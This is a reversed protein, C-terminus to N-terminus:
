NHGHKEIAVGSETMKGVLWFIMTYSNTVRQESSDAHLWIMTLAHVVPDDGTETEYRTENIPLSSTSRYSGILPFHPPLARSRTPTSILLTPWLKRSLTPDSRASTDGVPGTLISSSRRNNVPLSLRRTPLECTRPRDIDTNAGTAHRKTHSADNHIM